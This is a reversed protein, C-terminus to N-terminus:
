YYGLYGGLLEITQPVFGKPDRPSGSPAQLTQICVTKAIDYTDSWVSMFNNRTAKAEEDSLNFSTCLKDILVLGRTKWTDFIIDLDRSPLSKTFCRGVTDGVNERDHSTNFPLYLASRVVQNTSMLDHKVCCLKSLIIKFEKLDADGEETTSDKTSFLESISAVYSSEQGCPIDSVGKAPGQFGEWNGSSVTGNKMIIMYAIGAVILAIVLSCFLVFATSGPNKPMKDAVAAQM